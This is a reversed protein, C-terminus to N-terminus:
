LKIRKVFENLTTSNPINTLANIMYSKKNYLLTITTKYIVQGQYNMIGRSKLAKNGYITIFETSENNAESMNKVVTFYTNKFDSLGKDSLNAMRSAMSEVDISFNIIKDLGKQTTCTYNNIGNSSRAFEIKCPTNVTIGEINNDIQASLGIPLLLSTLLIKKM